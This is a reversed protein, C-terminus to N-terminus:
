GAAVGRPQACCMLAGLTRSLPSKRGSKWSAATAEGRDRRLEDDGVMSRLVSMEAPRLESWMAVKFYYRKKSVLHRKDATEGYGPLEYLVVYVPPAGCLKNADLRFGPWLGRVEWHIADAFRSVGWFCLTYVRDTSPNALAAKLARIYAAFGDTRRVGIGEMDGTIEPESGPEAEHFQDIAWLPMAFTPPEAEGVTVLPDEGPSQYFESGIVSRLARLVLNKARMVNASLTMTVYRMELGFYLPGEPLRKFRMQIRVEWIRKRDQFHWSYPYDGNKERWPQHTPRHLAIGKIKCLDNEMVVPELMNARLIGTTPLFTWRLPGQDVGESGNGAEKALPDTPPPVRRRQPAQPRRFWWTALCACALAACGWRALPSWQPEEQCRAWVVSSAACLAAAGLGTPLKSWASASSAPAAKDHM